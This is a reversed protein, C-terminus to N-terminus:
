QYHMLKSSSCTSISNGSRTCNKEICSLELFPLVSPSPVLTIQEITLRFLSIESFYQEVKNGINVITNSGAKWQIAVILGLFPHFGYM